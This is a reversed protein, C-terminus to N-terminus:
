PAVTRRETALRAPRQERTEVPKATERRVDRLKASQERADRLAVLLRERAPTALRLAYLTRGLTAFTLDRSPPWPGRLRVEDVPASDIESGYSTLLVLRGDQVLIQGARTLSRLLRGIRVGTADFEPEAM